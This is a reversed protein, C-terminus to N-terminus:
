IAPCPPRALCRGTYSARGHPCMRQVLATPRIVLDPQDRVAVVRQAAHAWVSDVDALTSAAGAPDGDVARAAALDARVALALILYPLAEPDPVEALRALMEGSREVARRALAVAGSYRGEAMAEAFEARMQLIAGYLEALWDALGEDMNRGAKAAGTWARHGIAGGHDGHIVRAKLLIIGQRPPM